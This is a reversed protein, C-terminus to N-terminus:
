RSPERERQLRQQLEEYRPGPVVVCLPTGDATTVQSVVDSRHMAQVIDSKTGRMLLIELHHQPRDNDTVIVQPVRPANLRMQRWQRGSVALPVNAKRALSAAQRM